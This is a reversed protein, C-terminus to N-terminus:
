DKMNAKLDNFLQGVIEDQDSEDAGLPVDASTWKKHSDKNALKKLTPNAANKNIQWNYRRYEKGDKVVKEGHDLRSGIQSDNPGASAPAARTGSVGQGRAIKARQSKRAFVWNKLRQLSDLRAGRSM